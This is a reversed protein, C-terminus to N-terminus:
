TVSCRMSFETQLAALSGDNIQENLPTENLVETLSLLVSFLRQVENEKGLHDHGMDHIFESLQILDCELIHERFLLLLSM